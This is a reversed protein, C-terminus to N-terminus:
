VILALRGYGSHKNTEGAGVLVRNIERLAKFRDPFFQLGQQCVVLDFSENPFPLSMASGEKWEINKGDSCNRAVNL